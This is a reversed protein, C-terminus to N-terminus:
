KSCTSCRGRLELFHPTSLRRVPCPVCETVDCRDCVLHDHHPLGALEYRNEAGHSHAEKLVGREVLATVNRYVTSLDLTKLRRHLQAVSWTRRSTFTRLIAKRDETKRLGHRELAAAIEHDHM